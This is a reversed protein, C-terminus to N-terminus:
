EDTIPDVASDKRVQILKSLKERFDSNPLEGKIGHLKAFEDCDMYSKELKGLNLFTKIAKKLEM